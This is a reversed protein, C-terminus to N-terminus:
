GAQTNRSRELSFHEGERGTWERLGLELIPPLQDQLPTLQLALEDSVEVSIQM